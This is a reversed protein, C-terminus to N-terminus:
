GSGTACCVGWCWPQRISLTSCRLRAPPWSSIAASCCGMVGILAVTPLAKPNIKLSKNQRLALLAAAPLSLVNRLFVVSLSNVGDAYIQKVMLPMCGFIVASLLVALYGNMIQKRNM